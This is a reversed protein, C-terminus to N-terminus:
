RPGREPVPRVRIAPSALGAVTPEATAGRDGAAFRVPEDREEQRHVTLHEFARDYDPHPLSAAALGALRIAAWRLSHSMRCAVEQRASPPTAPKNYWPRRPSAKGHFMGDHADYFNQM